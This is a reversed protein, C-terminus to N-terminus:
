EFGWVNGVRPNVANFIRVSTAAMKSWSAAQRKIYAVVGPSRASKLHQIWAEARYLFYRPIWAMEHTTISLEEM